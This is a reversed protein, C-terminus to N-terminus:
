NQATTTSSTSYGSSSASTGKGAYIESLFVNLRSLTISDIGYEISDDACDARFNDRQVPDVLQVITELGSKEDDSLGIRTLWGASDAPLTSKFRYPEPRDNLPVAIWMQSIRLKREANIEAINVM